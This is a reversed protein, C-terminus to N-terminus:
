TEGGSKRVVRAGQRLTLRLGPNLRKAEDFAAIGALLNSSAAIVAEIHDERTWIEIRFYLREDLVRVTRENPSVDCLRL